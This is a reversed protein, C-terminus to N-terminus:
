IKCKTGAPLCTGGGTSCWARSKCRKGKKRKRLKCCCNNGGCSGKAAERWPSSTGSQPLAGLDFNQLLLQDAAQAPLALVLLVLLLSAFAKM